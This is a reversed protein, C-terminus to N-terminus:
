SRFGYKLFNSIFVLQKFFARHVGAVRPFMIGAAIFVFLAPPFWKIMYNIVNHLQSISHAHM